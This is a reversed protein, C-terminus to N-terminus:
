ETVAISKFLINKKANLSCITTWSEVSLTSWYCLPPVSPDNEYSQPNTDQWQCLSLSFPLFTKIFFM